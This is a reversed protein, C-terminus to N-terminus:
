NLVRIEVTPTDAGTKSLYIASVDTTSLVKFPNLIESPFDDTWFLLGGGAPFTMTHVPTGGDNTQLVVTTNPNDTVRIMVGKMTTVDFGIQVLQDTVTGAGLTVTEKISTNGSYTSRQTFSDDSGDSWILGFTQDSLVSRFLIALALGLGVILWPM